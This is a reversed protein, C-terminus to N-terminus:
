PIETPPGPECIAEDAYYESVWCCQNTEVLEAFCGRVVAEPGYDAPCDAAVLEAEFKDLLIADIEDRSIMCPDCGEPPEDICYFEFYRRFEDVKTPGRGCYNEHLLKLDDAHWVGRVDEEFCQSEVQRGGCSSLMATAFSACLFAAPTKM